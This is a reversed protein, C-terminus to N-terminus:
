GSLPYGSFVPCGVLRTKVSTLSGILIPGRVPRAVKVTAVVRAKVVAVVTVVAVIVVVPEASM